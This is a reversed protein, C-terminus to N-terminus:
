RTVDFDVLGQDTADLSLAFAPTVGAASGEM